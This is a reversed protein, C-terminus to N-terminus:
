PSTSWTARLLQFCSVCSPFIQLHPCANTVLASLCARDVAYEGEAQIWDWGSDKMDCWGRTRKMGLPAPDHDGVIHQAPKHHAGFRVKRPSRSTDAAAVPKLPNQLYQRDLTVRSSSSDRARETTPPRPTLQESEPHIAAVREQEGGLVDELLHSNHVEVM